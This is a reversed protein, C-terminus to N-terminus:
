RRKGQGGGNGQGQGGGNGQGQGGGSGQGQGGGSGQGQGSGNGQGNGFGAGIEKGFNSPTHDCAAIRAEITKILADARAQTMKGSAVREKINEKRAELNAKEFEVLKGAEKALTGYTKGTAVKEAIVSEVTRGTVSALAEAPTKPAAAFAAGVFFACVVAAMAVVKVAKVTKTM